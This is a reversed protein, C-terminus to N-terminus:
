HRAETTARLPKTWPLPVTSAGNKKHLVIQRQQIEFAKLSNEQLVKKGNLLSITVQIKDKKVSWQISTASHQGCLAEFAQSKLASDPVWWPAQASWSSPSSELTVTTWPRVPGCLLDSDMKHLAIAVLGILISSGLVLWSLVGCSRRSRSTNRPPNGSVEDATTTAYSGDISSNIRRQLEVAREKVSLNDHFPAPKPSPAPEPVTSGKKPPSKGKGREITGSVNTTGPNEGFRDSGTSKTELSTPRELEDDVKSTVTNPHRDRFPVVQDVISLSKGTSSERSWTIFSETPSVVSEPHPKPQSSGRSTLVDPDKKKKQKKELSALTKGAPSMAVSHPITSSRPDMDTTSTIDGQDQRSASANNVADPHQGAKTTIVDYLHALASLPQAEDLYVVTATNVRSVDSPTSENNVASGQCTAPTIGTTASSNQQSAIGDDKSSPTTMTTDIGTGTTWKSKQLHSSEDDDDDDDKKRSLSLPKRHLSEEKHREPPTFYEPSVPNGKVKPLTTTPSDWGTNIVVSQQSEAPVPSLGEELTSTTTETMETGHVQSSDDERTTTTEDCRDGDTNTMVVDYLQALAALPQSEEVSLTDSPTVPLTPQTTIASLASAHHDGPVEGSEPQVSRSQTPPSPRNTREKISTFLSIAGQMSAEVKSKVPTTSDPENRQQLEDMVRSVNCRYEYRQWFEEYRVVAPVLVKYQLGLSDPYKALENRYYEQKNEDYVHQYFNSMFEKFDPQTRDLPTTFTSSHNRRNEVEAM